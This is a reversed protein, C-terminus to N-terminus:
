RAQGTSTVRWRQLNQYLTVPRKPVGTMTSRYAFAEGIQYLPLIPLHSDVLQHLEQCAARVERWNRAARLKTLSQIIFPDNSQAAGGEGMLRLADIAPEWMAATVYMIDVPTDKNAATIVEVRAPVGIRIWQQVFEEGAVRAAEFDPVGLVIQKLEPLPTHNKEANDAFNKKVSEVLLKGLNLDHAQVEIEQNYAYALPDEADTGVPFPGSIPRSEPTIPGGLLAGQLIGVRDIAYLLGRRFMVSAVYPHDSKPVLLHVIPLAYPEIKIRRDAALIKADSPFVRDIVDIRSSLLSAIADYPKEFQQEIIDVPQGAAAQVNAQNWVFISQKLPTGVESTSEKELRYLGTKVANQGLKVNEIPWQMFAIPLVHSQRLKVRLFDRGDVEVRQFLAAWGADYAANKPLAKKLMSQAVEFADPYEPRMIAAKNFQLSFETQDPSIEYKGLIFNYKGGEPGTDQFEFMPQTILAGVRRSPWDNLSTPDPTATTEFVGVRLTPHASEIEALMKLAAARSEHYDKSALLRKAETEYEIALERFRGEWDQVVKLSPGYDKKLRAVMQQAVQLEGDDYFKQILQSSAASIANSVQDVRLRPYSRRIEELVALAQSLKQKKFLGSASEMLFRQKTDELGPVSPYNEILYNLHEFANAYDEQGFKEQAAEMIMMEFTKVQAIDRWFIKYRRGPYILLEVELEDEPNPNSPPTDGPFDIDVARVQDGGAEATLIIMDFPLSADLLSEGPALAGTPRQAIAMSAITACLIMALSCRVAFLRLSCRVSLADISTRFNQSVFRLM